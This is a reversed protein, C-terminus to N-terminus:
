RFWAFRARLYAPQGIVIEDGAKVRLHAIGLDALRDNAVIEVPGALGAISELLPEAGLAPDSWQRARLAYAIGHAALVDLLLPADSPLILSLRRENLWLTM